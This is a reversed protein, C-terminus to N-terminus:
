VSTFNCFKDWTGNTVVKKINDLMGNTKSSQEAIHLGAKLNNSIMVGLDREASRIELQENGLFYMPQVNGHGFSIVKCRDVNLKMQWDKCWKIVSNVDKQLDVVDQNSSVSRYLKTDDTFKSIRSFLGVDIDNVYILFLIPGLVSGQPVGSTVISWSSM